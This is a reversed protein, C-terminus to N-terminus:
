AKLRQADSNCSARNIDRVDRGDKSVDANGTIDGARTAESNEFRAALQGSIHTPPRDTRINAGFVFCVGDVVRRKREVHLTAEMPLERALQGLFLSNEFDHFFEASRDTVEFGLGEGEVAALGAM